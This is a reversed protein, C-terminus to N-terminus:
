CVVVDGGATRWTCVTKLAMKKNPNHMQATVNLVVEHMWSGSAGENGLM